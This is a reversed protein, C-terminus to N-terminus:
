WCGSLRSNINDFFNVFCDVINLMNKYKESNFEEFEDILLRKIYNFNEDDNKELYTEFLIKTLHLLDIITEM